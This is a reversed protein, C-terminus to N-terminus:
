LSFILLILTVAHGIIIIKAPVIMKEPNGNYKRIFFYGTVGFCIEIFAVLKGFQINILLTVMVALSIFVLYLLSGKEIGLKVALTKKDTLKDTKFDAIENCVM